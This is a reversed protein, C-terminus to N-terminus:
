APFPNRVKMLALHHGLVEIADATKIQGTNFESLDHTAWPVADGLRRFCRHVANSRGSVMQVGAAVSAVVSSVFGESERVIAIRQVCHDTDKALAVLGARAEPSPAQTSNFTISLVATKQDRLKSCFSQTLRPLVRCVAPDIDSLWYVAILPGYAGM